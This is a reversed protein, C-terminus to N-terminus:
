RLQDTVPDEMIELQRGLDRPKHSCEYGITLERMPRLSHWGLDHVIAHHLHPHHHDLRGQDLRRVADADAV